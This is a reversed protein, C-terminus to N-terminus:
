VDERLGECVEESHRRKDVEEALRKQLAQHRAEISHSKREKAAVEAADAVKIRTRNCVIEVCSGNTSADAYKEWKRELLQLLSLVQVCLVNAAGLAQSQAEEASSEEGTELIVTRTSTRHSAVKHPECEVAEVDEVAKTAVEELAVPDEETDSSVVLVEAAREQPARMQIGVLPVKDQRPPVEKTLVAKGKDKKSARRPKVPTSQEETTRPKKGVPVEKEKYTSAVSGAERVYRGRAAVRRSETSSDEKLILRRAKMKSRACFDPSRMEIPSAQRLREEAVAVENIRRKKRPQSNQRGRSRKRRQQPLNRPEDELDSNVENSEGGRVTRYGNKGTRPHKFLAVYPREEERTVRVSESDFTLDGDDSACRGLVKWNWIQWTDPNVRYGPPKALGNNDWDHVIAKSTWNWGWLLFDMKTIILDRRYARLGVKPVQLAHLKSSRGM